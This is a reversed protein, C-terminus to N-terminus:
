QKKGEQEAGPNQLAIPQRLYFGSESQVEFAYAGPPFQELNLKVRLITKQEVLHAQAREAWLTEDRAKLSLQYAGEESGIPLVVSIELPKRPLSVARPQDGKGTPARTPSLERLDLTFQSFLIPAPGPGPRPPIPPRPGEIQTAVFYTGVAVVLVAVGVAGIRLPSAGPWALIARWLSQRQGRREQRLEALFDMYRTFCPSCSTFHEGVASDAKQPDFAALRLADESPCGVRDPNPFAESLYHKGFKLLREEDIQSNRKM